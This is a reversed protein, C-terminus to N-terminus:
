PCPENAVMVDDINWSGITYVGGSQIDFGFRVRMAANKYNTVDYQIYTWGQGNPPSDEVGPPGGSTWLTIWSQGNWVQVTNIDPIRVAGGASVDVSGVQSYLRTDGTYAIPKIWM